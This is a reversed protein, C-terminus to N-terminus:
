AGAVYLAYIASWAMALLVLMIAIVLMELRKLARQTSVIGWGMAFTQVGNALHYAVGLTGLIYVLLTPRYFHMEHAIDAFAEPHGEEIRPKLLALWLHAGLFLAVGIASIRQLLYKLNGYYGYRVNNPRATLLRGVGWVSHLVLPLLVVIGTVLQAVPSTYETVESQWAEAGRFASLNHWLHVATWLGLPAIGFLSALRARIFASRDSQGRQASAAHAQTASSM